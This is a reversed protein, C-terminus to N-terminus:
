TDSEKEYVDNNIEGDDVLVEQFGDDTDDKLENDDDFSEDDEIDDIGEDLAVMRSTNSLGEDDDDEEDDLDLQFDDVDDDVSEFELADSDDDGNDDEGDDESEINGARLPKRRIGLREDLTPGKDEVDQLDMAELTALLEASEDVVDLEDEFEEGEDGEEGIKPDVRIKNKGVGFDLTEPSGQYLQFTDMDVEGDEEGDEELEDAEDEDWEFDIDDLSPGDGTNSFVDFVRYKESLDFGKRHSSGSGKCERCFEKGVGNCRVCQAEGQSNIVLNPLSWAEDILRLLDDDIDKRQEAKVPILWGEGVCLKCTEMGSGVCASCDSDIFKSGGSSFEGTLSRGDTTINGVQEETLPRWEEPKQLVRRVQGGFRRVAPFQHRKSGGSVSNRDLRVTREMEDDMEEYDDEDNEADSQSSIIEKTLGLLSSASGQKTTTHASSSPPGDPLSPVKSDNSLPDSKMNVSPSSRSERAARSTRRRSGTNPVSTPGMRAIRMLTEFSSELFRTANMSTGDDDDDDMSARSVWESGDGRRRSRGRPVSSGSQENEVRAVITNDRGSEQVDSATADVDLAGNNQAASRQHSDDRSTTTAARARVNALWTTKDISTPRQPPNEEFDNEFIPESSVNSDPPTTGDGQSNLTDYLKDVADFASKAAAQTRMSRGNRKVGSSAGQQLQENTRRSQRLGNRRQGKDNGSFDSAYDGSGDLPADDENISSSFIDGENEAYSSGYDEDDRGEYDAGLGGDNFGRFSQSKRLRQRERSGRRSAQSRRNFRRSIPNNMQMSIFTRPRAVVVSRPIEVSRANTSVTTTTAVISSIPNASTFALVQMM